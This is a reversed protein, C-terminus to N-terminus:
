RSQSKGIGSRFLTKKMSAFPLVLSAFINFSFGVRSSARSFHKWSCFNYGCLFDFVFVLSM